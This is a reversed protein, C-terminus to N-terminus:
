LKPGRRCRRSKAVPTQAASVRNPDRLRTIGREALARERDLWAEVKARDFAM